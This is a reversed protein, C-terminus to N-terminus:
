LLGALGVVEVPVGRATLARALPGTDANRRVLVAATPPEQGAEAAAAYRAAIHDALWDREGAVDRQLACLVTGPQAGPRPRLPRVGVSRSRAEASVANALQLARPPNRWSTCM